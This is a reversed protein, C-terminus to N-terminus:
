NSNQHRFLAMNSPGVFTCTILCFAQNAGIGGSIGGVFTWELLHMERLM